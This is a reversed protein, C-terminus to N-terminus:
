NWRGGGATVAVPAGLARTRANGACIPLRETRPPATPSGDLFRIVTGATGVATM